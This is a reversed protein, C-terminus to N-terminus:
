WEQFRPANEEIDSALREFGPLEILAQCANWANDPLWDVPNEDGLKKPGRLLFDLSKPDFGAEQGVIKRQLLGIVLQSMFILKHKEFLGRAVWTFITTRLSESLAEVRENQAEKAEAKAISKFFFVNYSDLSYQYMHSIANLQCLMFYLMAGQTAVIRYGERAENIVLETEKGKKVAANIETATNKTAEVGEILPVDSLIDEPANALRDLLDDELEKLTIQYENFKQQLEQKQVELEHQEVNVVKALLQEELGKETVIFNILTCQAAVEPKYHPNALKTCMYLRFNNDYEVEEGGFNIFMTRGKRYLARTLVPELVADISEGLAEIIVATGQTIATQIVHVWNPQSLQIVMLSNQATPAAAAPKAEQEGELPEALEAEDKAEEGEKKEEGGGGTALLGLREERKRLWKIGQLQPDILLPWRTCSTIVAGNEVSIRDAPLGDNMWEAIDADTSLTGLPDVGETVPIERSLLDAIWVEKWLERRFGADFAGIYSVFAAALLVDGVLTSERIRLADIEVGWRKNESALGSVLRDALSIKEMCANAEAEVKAKEATAGLFEKQLGDLVEEIAAVQAEVVALDDEASKKDARAGELSEILPAVRVYIKHFSVTNIVWNCLNAAAMSKSKMKDYTFNSDTVIPELNKMLDDTMKEAAYTELTTKFADVKAMMKKANDWSFNKRENKIMMLVAATVKDVGAPPKGLSKLETLSAKTLCNVAEHAADLAPKAVQLEADAKGEIEAAIAASTAAKAKEIDAIAQQAEAAHRQEGMRELLADTGARKENVRVMTSKLEDQLGAVQSSASKICTLGSELREIAHKLEKQKDIVLTRFFAILELFSKPTTYNYRKQVELYRASMIGVSLHVEAMHHPVNEKVEDAGLAVSELFRTGVSVLADRPWPHFWDINTCNILGPFKRARVRFQDGVPSMCLLIHLNARVRDIFFEFMPDPSDPIGAAKAQPRLAGLISDIEDKGFLDPIYGSSLLDNIYVLFREDVIQSDTLMFVLPLAPKVGAKRYLEKLDEKLDAVGYSSTVSIQFMSYGCIDAALKSLSQKGSGGVGVLLANGRPNDLIRAIRTIHHMAQSFLVLEMIPHQENYEQLKVDLCKSLEDDSAVELYFATDEDITPTAFSTFVLPLAHLEEPLEDFHKKSLDVIMDSFRGIENDSVLRDSFVRHCEHVWLRLFRLPKSYYEQRSKCLGQFIAAYERMNWNYHFKIASPLFAESVLTHLEITSKVVSDCIKQIPNSFAGVHQRLITGFVTKLDDVGPMLCGFTAFHRQLRPNITFSGSKPNMCSIYQISQVEKRLGLDTRDFWGGYDMHQRLLAIPTQTGYEEVFPMNMDDIMVVMKKNNPPGYIKGSRKDIKLELQKQLAYSDTFYNMSIVAGVTGEELNRLYEKALTSKGSGAAGVFMVPQKRNVISTTLYSLRVSDVTSVVINAFQTDGMPVYEPVRTSWHVLEKRQIDYFYDWVDGGKPYKVAKFEAKWLSDFEKRHKATKDSTLCGGIGWVCAFVFVPEVQQQTLAEQGDLLEELLTCVTIVMSINMIPTLTKLKNKRLLLLGKEMYKEFLVVFIGRQKEDEFKNIWSEVYPRWGVDSENLFLIGARSVTAPTANDLSAIEFIMRMAATLPIRENSVLTLVKNDDMVTNMSEIWVADIDGDLVVWKQNQAATYPPWEKSMNRMVISLCGDKWDKALTMYGYLEDSTVSKPNVSEYVTTPKATKNQSPHNHCNALTAWVASKASGGPGLLMVSHRVDLLEQYQVVKSIFMDESQLGTEKCVEICVAKLTENIKTALALGPFLDNVLQLFIPTDHAPIKPTNFDRLARMLIADEGVTPEARKLMGAVRLVSKVARLGWDYHAQKSLLDASLEYLTVFKIALGRAQAFGEAMLMNECIPKLDPRIMACSRFNAKLNEPLETRGAYGPNMTIWFGTTPILRIVDGFFDFKGVVVPPAGAPHKQYKEERNAPVSFRVIADLVTKVQTAVVSLVEIMIRNFEDFCGWAGTQSLGKFIDAMTQYNMQDSCNFVYCPLGLARALDKTTETKGTGAPGAPAGGLNLRLATTLTVYCRDTLPTIVLRGTNGVYEYAYLTSYDCIKINVDRTDDNWYYKLQSQWTFNSASEIKEDILKQVLDRGHVDITILTIIKARDQGSLEDLVLLILNGLRGNCLELYSKMADEQGNELEELAGECEETWFIQSALLTLQACYDFLWQERPKDVEWNAATDLAKEQWDRLTDQMMAVLKNLWSEVAGVIEFPGVLPVTEGDKAIMTKCINPFREKKSVGEEADASQEAAKRALEEESWHLDLYKIGDFCDGIHPMVKPPNNGNALIDLLAVNSVFYFRPFINKKVELYENLAKQCIELEEHMHDLIAERGQATCAQLALTMTAAERMMEKLESDISEFRKSDEPLQNMIDASGLFIGELSSWQRIVNLWLKLVTEVQGLQQQWGMVREKFYEVFKGMGAMTQLQLQHEEVSEVIIAPSSIIQVGSDKYEVYDLELPAVGDRWQEEIQLLKTEIKLEKNAVDVIEMTEDVYEHLGLSLVDELCFSPGKEFHKRAVSMVSKWHRERMANSHLEHIVPLVLAMNKVNAQLDEYVQWGRVTKPLQKIQGAIDRVEEILDDVKIDAWLTEQWACFLSQVVARTDWVMKLQVIDARAERLKAYKSVQLEFLEELERFDQAEKEIKALEQQQENMKQYAEDLSEETDTGEKGGITNFPAKSMFSKHFEDVKGDFVDIDRKIQEVMSNQLPLIVEKKKFTNNVTNDWRMPASELCELATMEGVMAEEMSVGHSKLLAVTDNLPQFEHPTRDMIRRVDRIHTMVKILAPKDGAQVEVELGEGVDKMFTDLTTLKVMVHDHLYQTYLYIWKTVWTSLAQKIPQSNVRLFCIDTSPRLGSIANAVGLFYQIREDFKALDLKPEAKQWDELEDEDEPEAEEEDSNSAAGELKDPELFAGELFEAFIASLDSTWLYQYETYIHRYDECDGLLTRLNKTVDALLAIIEPHERLEKIYHGEGTDIRKFVSSVGFFTDIWKLVVDHVGGGDTQPLITPIYMVEKGLLDLEIELLPMKDDKRIFEPDIQENLYELSVTVVQALGGVVINNAFDVYAKWDPLGNSVRLKKNTDKLLKHVQNGGERVVGYRSQLLPQQALNFDAISAPKSQRVMLAGGQPAEEPGASWGELLEVVCHLNTKMTALLANAERVEVMTETIFLDIGHSKWNLSRLGKTLVHDIKDLHSKILPREVPLVSTQIGNYMNVILDLNGNQRRLVESKKFIALAPEPVELGLLLFYKVERLLRTLAPDFNVYLTRTEADRRLLPLKLQAQSSSEISQGWAEIKAHKFEALSAVLQTYAKVVDKAEEREMVTRGLSKLKEMPQQIRELLGTCWALAGATPPLNWAIPPLDRLELFMQQVAHLDDSYSEILLTHKKELENQVLPRELLGEFSDLLSFRGGVTPLDDFGQTVVSGIRRELEKIRARFEYFDDDFAKADLDMIDYQIAQITGVASVFDSYVQQVSTTLTKGKTGGIEIKALKSFNVITQTLELLDHCRELFADLRVFLANNQVRWQNNPCEANAMAKYDFYSSKFSGLVKLALRLMEVLKPTEDSDIMDFIKKGGIFNRCQSILANSVKRMLVVLRSPSNYFRSERWVALILHLVPRFTMPLKAFAPESELKGFWSELTRLYKFNDNAESRAHFVEKCLKAFPLNYTSKAQDLFRLVKRIREGQLQNFISNLNKSKSEWFELESLPGPHTPDDNLLQEPDQSLVSKIQKTWTILCGELVHVRDKQDFTKSESSTDKDMPLPLFVDGKCQGETIQLAALMNQIREMVDKTVVESWGEQNRPNSLLPLYIEQMTHAMHILPNDNFDGVVAEQAYNDVSLPGPALKLVYLTSGKAKKPPALAVSVNGGAECLFLCRVKDENLFQFITDLVKENKTFLKFKDMKVHKFTNQAQAFVWQAREDFTREDTEEDDEKKDDKGM